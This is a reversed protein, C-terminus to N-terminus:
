QHIWGAYYFLSTILFLFGMTFDNNYGVKINYLLITGNIPFLKYWLSVDVSM